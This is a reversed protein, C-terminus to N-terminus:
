FKSLYMTPKVYGLFLGSENLNIKLSLSVVFVSSVSKSVFEYYHHSFINGISIAVMLRTSIIYSIFSACNSPTFNESVSPFTDIEVSYM